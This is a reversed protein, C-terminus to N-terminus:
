FALGLYRLGSSLRPPVYIQTGGGKGGIGYETPQGRWTLEKAMGELVTIEEVVEFEGLLRAAGPSHIALQSMQSGKLCFWSGLPPDRWQFSSTRVFQFYHEGVGLTMLYAPRAPTIDFGELVKSIENETVAYQRLYSIAENRSVRKVM